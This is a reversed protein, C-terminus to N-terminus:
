GKAKAAPVRQSPPRHHNTYNPPAVSRYPFPIVLLATPSPFFPTPFLDPPTRSTHVDHSGIHWQAHPHCM